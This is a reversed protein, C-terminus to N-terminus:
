MIRISRHKNKNKEGFNLKIQYGAIIEHSGSSARNLPSLPISYAYGLFVNKFEAGLMVAIADKYRYGVGFSLFKRFTTRLTLEASFNSFDTRVLLSPQLSFLSNRIPINGDATFYLQRMLTTSYQSTESEAEGEQELNIKPELLHLGSIGISFYKHTYTIGASLDFANGTVDQKPLAEDEPSHYENGEPIYIDTGRFKTNYYAPQIGITLVGKLPKVRIQYALQAGILLNSFLGINEQMVNVGVGLRQKKGLKVPMDATAALSRPANKIGIWQLNYGGRIRVFEIQGAYAPNYFAPIAWYQAFQPDNQAKVQKCDFLIFSLLACFLILRFEFKESLRTLMLIM